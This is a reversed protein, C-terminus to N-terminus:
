SCTWTSTALRQLVIDVTKLFQFINGVFKITDLLAIGNLCSTFDANNDLWILDVIVTSNNKCAIDLIFDFIFKFIRSM